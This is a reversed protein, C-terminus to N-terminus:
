RGHEDKTLSLLGSPQGDAGISRWVGASWQRQRADRTRKPISAVTEVGEVFFANVGSTDCYALGMGRSRALLELGSLSCGHYDSKGPWRFGADYEITAPGVDAPIHCNFECIVIRARRNLARWLWYDMGDVDIALVGLDMPVGAKDFEANINEATLRVKHIGDRDSAADFWHCCWGADRLIRTCCEAGDGVGFEAAVRPIDPMADLLARLAGDEGHQSYVSYESAEIQGVSPM